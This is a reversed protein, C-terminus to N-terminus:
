PAGTGFADRCLLLTDDIGKDIDGTLVFGTAKLKDMRYDLKPAAEDHKPEPRVVEPAFGLLVQCRSAIRRTLEIVQLTCDGGLNFLGDGCCEAPLTVLHEVARGVDDLTIFDRRQLGSSRLELKGTSVAQRCLDNVLLTWRNVAPDAPAGFGNSLRVVIGTLKKQAHAALVFDEAVRHTIAYPHIPRALTTEDITGQLPAGYVHATSFYIFRKVGAKEAARLLKLSGLGNVVLAKEPDIASVIEDLAALHVITDVGSCAAAVQGDDLLDLSVLTANSLWAPAPVAARSTGVRIEVGFLAALHQTIRGGLYGLGGTILIRNDSM